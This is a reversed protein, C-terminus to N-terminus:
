GKEHALLSRIKNKIQGAAKLAGLKVDPSIVDSFYAPELIIIGLFLIKMGAPNGNLRRWLAMLRAPNMEHSSMRAPEGAMIDAVAFWQIHGPTEDMLVSDVLILGDCGDFLPLLNIGLIGGEIIEVHGPFSEKKLYRFVELGAADDGRFPNGCCIVRIIDRFEGM